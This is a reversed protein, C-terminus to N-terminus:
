MLFLTLFFVSIHILNFWLYILYFYNKLINFRGNPSPQLNRSIQKQVIKMFNQLCSHAPFILM